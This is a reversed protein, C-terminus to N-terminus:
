QAIKSVWVGPITITSGMTSEYSYLGASTGFITIYDDELIRSSVISSDYECYLMANYDGNVALRIAVDGDSELVQVVRGYFKVKKGEYPEPTRALQSYTIGTEYAQAERQAAAKKEAAEREAAAKKEADIKAQAQKALEQAQKDEVSGNHDEHLTKALSIVLPWQQKEFANKVGILQNAASNEMEYIEDELKSNQEELDSVKVRLHLAESELDNIKSNLTSAYGVATLRGIIAVVSVVQFTLLKNFNKSTGKKADKESHNQKSDVTSEAAEKSHEATETQRLEDSDKENVDVSQANASIIKDADEEKTEVALQDIQKEGTEFVLKDVFDDWSEGDVTKLSQDDHSMAVEDQEQHAVEPSESELKVAQEEEVQSVEESTEAPELSNSTRVCQLNMRM